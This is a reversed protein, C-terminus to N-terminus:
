TVTRSYGTSNMHPLVSLGVDVRSATDVSRTTTDFSATSRNLGPREEPVYGTEKAYSTDPTLM